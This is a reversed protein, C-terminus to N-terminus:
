DVKLWEDGQEGQSDLYEMYRKLIQRIYGSTSRCNYAARGSLKEYLDLPLLVSVTKKPEKVMM